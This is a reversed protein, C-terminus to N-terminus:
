KSHFLIILFYEWVKNQYITLKSLASNYILKSVEDFLKDDNFLYTENEEIVFSKIKSRLLQISDSSINWDEIYADM